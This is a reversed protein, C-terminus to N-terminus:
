PSKDTFAVPQLVNRQNIKGFSGAQAKKPTVLGVRSPCLCPNQGHEREEVVADANGGDVAEKIVASCGDSTAIRCRM